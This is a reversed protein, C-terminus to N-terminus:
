YTQIQLQIHSSPTNTRNINYIDFGKIRDSQSFAGGGHMLIPTM